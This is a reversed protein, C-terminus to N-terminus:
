VRAACSRATPARASSATGDTLLDIREPYSFAYAIPVKMDPNGMQGIVSGDEYEVASHLISQPHVVM